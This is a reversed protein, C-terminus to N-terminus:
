CEVLRPRSQFGFYASLREAISPQPVFDQAPIYEGMLRRAIQNFAFAARSHSALTLPQGKHGAAIVSEDEPIIGILELSLLDLVYALDVTNKKKTLMPRFRNIVLRPTPKDIQEILGVVRDGARVSVVDLTVVLIIEDAPTIANRFGSEIGAPCDILVFDFVSRLEKCLMVMQYEKIVDKNSTSSAPLLALKPLRFDQVLAHRLRAHGEIVDVLDYTIQSTVGLIADLKRMGIDADICAVKKGKQALAVALNATTTTKGVGGKGSTITIVTGSM